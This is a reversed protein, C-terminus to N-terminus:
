RKISPSSRVSRVRKANSQSFMLALGITAALLIPATRFEPVSTTSAVNENGGGVGTFTTETGTQTTTGTTTTPPPGGGDIYTSTSTSTRTGSGISINITGTEQFPAYSSGATAALLLSVSTAFLLLVTVIVFSRHIHQVNKVLATQRM